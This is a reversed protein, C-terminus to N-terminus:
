VVYHSQLRSNSARAHGVLQAHKLEMQAITYSVHVERDLLCGCLSMTELLLGLHERKVDDGV